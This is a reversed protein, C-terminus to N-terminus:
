SGLIKMLIAKPVSNFFYEESTSSDLFSKCHRKGKCEENDIEIKKLM